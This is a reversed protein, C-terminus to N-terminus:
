EATNEKAGYSLSHKLGIKESERESHSLLIEGIPM